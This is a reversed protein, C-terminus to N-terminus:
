GRRSLAGRRGPVAGAGVPRTLGAVLAALASRWRSEQEGPPLIGRLELAALGECLAHFEVAAERTTRTGLGDARRLRELRAELRTMAAEAAPWIGPADDDALGTQQVGIRFLSPHEVVLRRFVTAGAAVLDGAPDATVPLLELETALWDFARSGLAVLLGAKSGFLSYVARTTTGVEDAVRRVSLAAVGEAEILREAADLLGIRTDEGHEKPRGM